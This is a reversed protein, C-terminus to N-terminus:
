FSRSISFVATARGADMRKSGSQSGTNDIDNSFCYFEGRACDGKANTDIYSLGFLWGNIDKTVGLKWDTYSANSVKRFFLHGVHANIGWGNGLDFNSAVDLYGTGDTKEGNPGKANFYDTMAYYYKASLFKWSAGVYLEGNKVSKGNLDSGPYAYYIGGVDLGVDGISVKYGGYFDMELSADPYGAGANVNSNWNGVYLGSGHAYDIGGQLAPRGFTQAIGRFRYQSFLGANGTLAQPPAEVAGATSQAMVPLSFSGALAAAIIIKKL